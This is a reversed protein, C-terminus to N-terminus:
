LGEDSETLELLEENLYRADAPSLAVRRFGPWSGVEALASVWAERFTPPLSHVDRGRHLMGRAAIVTSLREYGERSLEEPVEDPWVLCGKIAEFAPEADPDFHLSAILERDAPALSSM